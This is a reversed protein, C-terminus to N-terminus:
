GSIGRELRIRLDQNERSYSLKLCWLYHVSGLKTVSTQFTSYTWRLLVQLGRRSCYNRWEGAEWGVRIFTQLWIHGRASGKIESPLQQHVCYVCGTSPWVRTEKHRQRKVRGWFDLLQSEMILVWIKFSLKFVQTIGDDGQSALASPNYTWPTM